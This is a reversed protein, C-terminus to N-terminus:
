RRRRAMLGAGGLVLLGLTAPEPITYLEFALDKSFQGIGGHIAAAASPGPGDVGDVYFKPVMSEQLLEVNCQEVVQVGVTGGVSDDQFHWVPTPYNPDIIPRDDHEGPSPVPPGAAYPDFVTYDRNHWGWAITGDRQVDVLAVIKLWYVTEAQQEFPCKLEANYEYVPESASSGAVLTETFTGSGPALPGHNVVQALLKTGPKSFGDQHNHPDSPDPIDSEFAVLFKQVGVTGLQQDMYSGWWKLHVVPTNVKDAFDDAMFSGTYVGNDHNGYATSTEDHGYYIQGDISTAIMPQQQFKLIQGPLPDALGSQGVWLIVAVCFLCYKLTKM